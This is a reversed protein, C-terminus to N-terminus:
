SSTNGSVTEHRAGELTGFPPCADGAEPSLVAPERLAGQAIRDAREFPSLEAATEGINRSLFSLSVTGSVDSSRM